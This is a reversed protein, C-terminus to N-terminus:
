HAKIFEVTDHLYQQVLKSPIVFTIHGMFNYEKYFKLAKNKNLVGALWQADKPTAMQDNKGVMMAIPVTHDLNNLDYEEVDHFVTKRHKVFGRYIKMEVMHLLSLVSTGVPYHAMIVEWRDQNDYYPNMDTVIALMLNCIAPNLKCLVSTFSCLSPDYQFLERIGMYELAYMIYSYYVIGLLSNSHEMNGVPAWLTVSKLHKKFYGPNVAMGALIAGSSQSYGVYVVKQYGTIKMIHDINAKADYVGMEHLSYEWFEADRDPDLKTHKRTYRNGRNNMLWVDYGQDALMYPVSADGNDLLNDSSGLVGHALLVPQGKKGPIRFTLLIYGDETVITHNETRYGRAEAMQATNRYCDPNKGASITLALLSLLLAIFTM